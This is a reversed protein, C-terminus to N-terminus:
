QGTPSLSLSGNVYALIGGRLSYLRVVHVYVRYTSRTGPGTRQARACVCVSVMYILIWAFLCACVVNPVACKLYILYFSKICMM